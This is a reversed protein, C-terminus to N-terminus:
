LRKAPTWTMLISLQRFGKRLTEKLRKLESDSFDSGAVFIRYHRHEEAYKQNDQPNIWGGQGSYYSWGGFLQIIREQLKEFEDEPVPQGDNYAIPLCIDVWGGTTEKQRYTATAPIKFLGALLGEQSSLLEGRELIGHAGVVGEQIQFEWPSTIQNIANVDHYFEAPPFEAGSSRLTALSARAGEDGILLGSHADALDLRNSQIRTRGLVDAGLREGIHAWKFSTLAAETDQALQSSSLCSASLISPEEKTFLTGRFPDIGLFSNGGTLLGQTPNALLVGNEAVLTNRATQRRLSVDDLSLQDVGPNVAFAGQEISLANVQPNADISYVSPDTRAIFAGEDATLPSDATTLGLLTDSALSLRAPTELDFAAERVACTAGSVDAQVIGLDSSLFNARYEGAIIGQAGHALAQHQVSCDGPGQVAASRGRFSDIESHATTVGLDVQGTGCDPQMSVLGDCVKSFMGPDTRAIFAGEEVTLPSDAATLGRLTDSALSLQTPTEFNFAAERVACTAGSVDAQVIGLDSSLFNARYEGAIIGQAGHALAQHQVSCDGPGQVAASRGRFSDIDSRATTVGLDVQVTGFDPQMSVLGDCVKIKLWDTNSLWDGHESKSIGTEEDSEEKRDSM